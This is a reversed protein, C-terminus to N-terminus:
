SECGGSRGCGYLRLWLWAWPWQWPWPWAVAVALAVTAAVALTRYNLGFTVICNVSSVCGCMVHFRETSCWTWLHVHRHKMTSTKNQWHTVTSSPTHPEITAFLLRQINGFKSFRICPKPFCTKLTKTRHIHICGLQANSIHSVPGFLSRWIIDSDVLYCHVLVEKFSFLLHM